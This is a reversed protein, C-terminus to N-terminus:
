CVRKSPASALNAPFQAIANPRPYLLKPWGTILVLLLKHLIDSLTMLALYRLNVAARLCTAALQDRNPKPSMDLAVPFALM